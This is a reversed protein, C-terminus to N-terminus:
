NFIVKDTKTISAICYPNTMVTSAMGDPGKADIKVTAINGNISIDKIGISYGGSSKQGLFLAIVNRKNFDTKPAAGLNLETYLGNLEEQSTIVVNGASKKGGFSDQKLIEFSGQKVNNIKETANSGTTGDASKQSCCSFFAVALLSLIITKKM